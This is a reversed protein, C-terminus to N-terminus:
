DLFINESGEAPTIKPKQLNGNTSFDKKTAYEFAEALSIREDYNTDTQSKMRPSFGHFLCGVLSNNESSYSQKDKESGTIVYAGKRPMVDSFGGSYCMCLAAITEKSNIGSLMTKLELKSVGSRNIPFGSEERKSFDLTSIKKELYGHGVSAFVFLDKSTVKKSLHSMVLALSERTVVDDTPHYFNENLTNTLIYIDTPNFKNEILTKYISSIDAKHRQESDTRLLVAYKKRCNEESKPEEAIRKEIRAPYYNPPFRRSTIEEQSLMGSIFIGSWLALNLGGRIIRKTVKSKKNLPYAEKKNKFLNNM